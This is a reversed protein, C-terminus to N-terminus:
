FQFTICPCCSTLLHLCASSRATGNNVAAETVGNDTLVVVRCNAWVYIWAQAAMVATALEETNIHHLTLRQVDHAWRAYLLNGCVFGSAGDTFVNLITTKGMTSGIICGSWIWRYTVLAASTPHYSWPHFWYISILHARGWSIVHSAWYLKGALYELQSCSVRKLQQLTHLLGYLEPPKKYHLIVRIVAFQVKDVDLLIQISLSIHVFYEDRRLMVSFM